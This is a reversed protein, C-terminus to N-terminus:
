IYNVFQLKKDSIIVKPLSYYKILYYLLKDTIVKIITLTIPKLIVNKFLKNIIVIIYTVKNLGLLSLRLIFYIFM